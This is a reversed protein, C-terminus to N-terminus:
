ADRLIIERLGEGVLIESFIYIKLRARISKHSALSKCKCFHVGWGVGFLKCLLLKYISDPQIWVRKSQYWVGKGTRGRNKEVTGLAGMYTRRLSRFNNSSYFYQAKCALWIFPWSLSRLPGPLIQKRRKGCDGVLGMWSVTPVVLSAHLM